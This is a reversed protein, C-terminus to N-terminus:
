QGGADAACSPLTVVSLWFDEFAQLVRSFEDLDLPKQIYCNAHLDYAKVIDEHAKSTTLVAVPICRLDVDHKIKALLDRGDMRPLNLDLLIMDPRVADVYPSERRLFQLADVGDGVVSIRNAVKSDKLAERMLRADAPSDEVLLVEVPRGLACASM